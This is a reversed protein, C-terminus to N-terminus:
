AIHDSIKLFIILKLMNNQHNSFTCTINIKKKRGISRLLDILDNVNNIKNRYKLKRFKTIPLVEKLKQHIEKEIYKDYIQQEQLDSYKIVKGETDEWSNFDGFLQLFEIVQVSDYDIKKKPRGPKKKLSQDNDTM